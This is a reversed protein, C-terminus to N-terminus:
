RAREKGCAVHAIAQGQHQHSDESKRGEETQEETSAVVHDRAHNGVGEEIRDLKEQDQRERYRPPLISLHGIGSGEEDRDVLLLDTGFSRFRPFQPARRPPLVLSGRAAAEVAPLFNTSLRQGHIVLNGDDTPPSRGPPIDDGGTLGAVVVLLM